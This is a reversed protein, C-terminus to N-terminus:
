SPLQDAIPALRLHMEHWELAEDIYPTDFTAGCSCELEFRVRGACFTSEIAHAPVLKPELSVPANSRGLRILNRITM